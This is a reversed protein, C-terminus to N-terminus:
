VASRRRRRLAAVGVCAFGFLATGPEPVVTILNVNDVGMQFYGSNDVEAFRVRLTNGENAQLLATLTSTETTYGSILPDAAGTQYVNLLVDGPAISTASSSATLIDVRAQQNTGGVHTLALGPTFAGDRNGLFLDFALTASSIGVPVVFDQWLIHTGPGSQDTMAAFSGGPQSPVAHGSIPSTTGSQAYWFGSGSNFTSWSTLATSNVGGNSEFGGNTILSGHATHTGAALLLLGSILGCLAHNTKM